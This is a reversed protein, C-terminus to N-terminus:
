QNAWTVWALLWLAVAMIAAVLVEHRLDMGSGGRGTASARASRPPGENAPLALAPDSAERGCVLAADHDAPPTRVAHM